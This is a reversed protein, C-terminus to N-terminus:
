ARTRSRRPSIPTAITGREDAAVWFQGGAQTYSAPLQQLGSDTEAGVGFQLGFEALTERVLSVVGAVDAPAVPRIEISM